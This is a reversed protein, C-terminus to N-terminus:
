QQRRKALIADAEKVCNEALRLLAACERARGQHAFVHETASVLQANTRDARKKLEAVVASWTTPSSRALLALALVLEGDESAVSV